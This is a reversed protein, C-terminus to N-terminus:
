QGNGAALVQSLQARARQEFDGRLAITRSLYRRADAANNSALAAQALYYLAAEQQPSDGAEAVARLSKSAGALDGQHMRCVGSFFRAALSNQDEAPVQSLAKVAQSCDGSAYDQMGASFHPNSSEGRLTSGRFPPLALDALRSVALSAANPSSDSAKPAGAPAPPLTARSNAVATQSSRRPHFVFFGLVLLAAIAGLAALRFPWALPPRLGRRPALRLQRSVAQLAEVQALCAPCDFYHEEFRQADDEPLTGLLYAELFEDAPKGTCNTM